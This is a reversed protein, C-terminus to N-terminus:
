ETSKTDGLGKRFCPEQDMLSTPLPRSQQPPSRQPSREKEDGDREGEDLHLGVYRVVRLEAEFLVACVQGASRQLAPMSCRKTQDTAHYKSGNKAELSAVEGKGPFLEALCHGHDSKPGSDDDDKDLDQHHPFRSPSHDNM